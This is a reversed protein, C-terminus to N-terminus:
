AVEKRMRTRDGELSSEIEAHMDKMWGYFVSMRGALLCELARRLKRQSLGPGTRRYWKAIKLIRKLDSSVEERPWDGPNLIDVLHLLAEEASPHLIEHTLLIMAANVFLQEPELEYNVAIRHSERVLGQVGFLKDYKDACVSSKFLKIVDALLLHKREIRAPLSLLWVVNDRQNLTLPYKNISPWQVISSGFWIVPDKAFFVEQIIWLRQWYPHEFLARLWECPREPLESGPEGIKKQEKFRLYDKITVSDNGDGPRYDRNLELWTAFKDSHLGLPSDKWRHNSRQCVEDCPREAIGSQPEYENLWM